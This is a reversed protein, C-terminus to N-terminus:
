RVLANIAAFLFVALGIGIARLFALWKEVRRTRAEDIPWVFFKRGFYYMLYPPADPSAQRAKIEALTAKRFFRKIEYHEERIRYAPILRDFLFLPNIPWIVPPAETAEQGKPEFGIIHAFLWFGGLFVVLIVFVWWVAKGPRLGHDALALLAWQFAISAIEGTASFMSTSSKAEGQRPNFDNQQGPCFRGIFPLWRTTSRCLDITMRQVRLGTGSEGAHQFGQVFAAFPQSSSSANKDLWNSVDSVDPLEVQSDLSGLSGSACSASAKHIRDFKLGDL